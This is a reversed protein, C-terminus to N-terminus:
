VFDELCTRGFFFGLAGDGDVSKGSSSAGPLNTTKKKLIYMYINFQISYIYPM